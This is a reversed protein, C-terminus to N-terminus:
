EENASICAKVDIWFLFNKNNDDLIKNEIFERVHKEIKKEKLFEQIVEVFDDFDLNIHSYKTNLDEDYNTEVECAFENFFNFVSNLFNEHKCCLKLVIKLSNRKLLLFWLKLDNQKKLISIVREILMVNEPEICYLIGNLLDLTQTKLANLLEISLMKDNCSFLKSLLSNVNKYNISTEDENSINEFLNMLNERLKLEMSIDDLVNKLSNEPSLDTYKNVAYLTLNEDFISNVLIKKILDDLLKKFNIEPYSANLERSLVTRKKNCFMKQVIVANEFIDDIKEEKLDFLWSSDSISKLLNKIKSEDLDETLYDLEMDSEMKRNYDKVTNCM